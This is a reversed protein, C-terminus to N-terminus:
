QVHLQGFNLLRRFDSEASGGVLMVGTFKTRLLLLSRKRAYPRNNGVLAGQVISSLEVWSTKICDSNERCIARVNLGLQRIGLSSTGTAICLLFKGMQLPRM